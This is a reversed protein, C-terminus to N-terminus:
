RRSVYEMYYLVSIQAYIVIDIDRILHDLMAAKQDRQARKEVQLPSSTDATLAAPIDDHGSFTLDSNPPPHDSGITSADNM